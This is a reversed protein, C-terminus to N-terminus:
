HRDSPFWCRVSYIAYGITTDVCHASLTPMTPCPITVTPASHPKASYSHPQLFMSIDSQEAQAQHKNM